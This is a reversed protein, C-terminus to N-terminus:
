HAAPAVPMLISGLEYFATVIADPRPGVYALALPYSAGGARCKVTTSHRLFVLIPQLDLLKPLSGLGVTNLPLLIVADEIPDVDSRLHQGLKEIWSTPDDTAILDIWVSGFWPEGLAEDARYRLEAPVAAVVSSTMAAITFQGGVCHVARVVVEALDSHIRKGSDNSAENELPESADPPSPPSETKSDSSNTGRSNNKPLLALAGRLSLDQLSRGEAAATEAIAQWNRYVRLYLYGTRESIGLSTCLEARTPGALGKPVIGSIRDLCAGANRAHVLAKGYAVLVKAHEKRLSEHVSRLKRQQSKTLTVLATTGVSEIPGHAAEADAVDNEIASGPSCRTATSVPVLSTTPTDKASATPMLNPTSEPKM